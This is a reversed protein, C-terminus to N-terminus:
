SEDAKDSSPQQPNNGSDPPQPSQSPSATDTAAGAPPASPEVSVSPAAPTEGAKSAANESDSSESSQAENSPTAGSEPAYAAGLGMEKLTESEPAPQVAEESVKEPAKGAGVKGEIASLGLALVLFLGASIYTLRVPLSRSARPGFVADSGPGIGFAGAFSTGKGKQLLVIVMLFVCVPFYVFWMIWRLTEWSFIADLM